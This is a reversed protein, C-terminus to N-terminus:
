RVQNLVDDQEYEKAILETVPVGAFAPDTYLRARDAYAVKKAEVMVHWFDASERGM